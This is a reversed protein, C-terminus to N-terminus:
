TVVVEKMLESVVERDTYKCEKYIFDAIIQIPHKLRIGENYSSLIYELTTYCLGKHTYNRPWQSEYLYDESVNGIPEYM